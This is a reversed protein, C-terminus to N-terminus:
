NYYGADYALSNSYGSKASTGATKGSYYSKGFQGIGSLVTSMAGTNAANAANEGYMRFLRAQNRKSVKEVDAAWRTALADKEAKAAADAMILLPSGEDLNVGSKAYRARMTGMQLRSEERQIGEDWQAKQEVQLADNEAIAANFENAEKAAQGAQAQASASMGTGVLGVIASIIGMAPM